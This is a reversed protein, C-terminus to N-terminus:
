VEKNAGKVGQSGTPRGRSERSDQLDVGQGGLIGQLGVGQGGPAM